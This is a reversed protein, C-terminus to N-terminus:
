CEPPIQLVFRCSSGPVFPRPFAFSPSRPAARRSPVSLLAPLPFSFPSRLTFSFSVAFCLPTGKDRAPADGTRKRGERERERERARAREALQMKCLANALSENDRTINSGVNACVIDSQRLRSAALSARENGANREAEEAQSGVRAAAVRASSNILSAFPFRSLSLHRMRPM